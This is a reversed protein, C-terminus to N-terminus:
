QQEPLPECPAFCGVNTQLNYFGQTSGLDGRIGALFWEGSATPGVRRVSTWGHTNFEQETMPHTNWFNANIFDWCNQEPVHQDVIDSM